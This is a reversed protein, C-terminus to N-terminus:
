HVFSSPRVSSDSFHYYHSYIPISFFRVANNQTLTINTNFTIGLKLYYDSFLNYLVVAINRNHSVSCKSSGRLSCYM